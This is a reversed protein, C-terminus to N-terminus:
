SAAREQYFPRGIQFKETLQDASDRILNWDLVDSAPIKRFGPLFKFPFRLKTPDFRGGVIHQAVPSFWPFKRLEKDLQQRASTWEKEDSHVPGLVFLAVPLKTLAIRQTSLFRRVDKHLRGGYLAVCVVVATYPETLHVNAAPHLDVPLNHSRLVEAVAQAVEETSGGRTAYTVLVNPDM